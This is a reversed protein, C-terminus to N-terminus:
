FDAIGSRPDKGSKGCGEYNGSLVSVWTSTSGIHANPDKCPGGFLSVDLDVLYTNHNFSM